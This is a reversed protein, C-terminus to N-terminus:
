RDRGICLALSNGLRTKRPLVEPPAPQGGERQIQLFGLVLALVSDKLAKAFKLMRSGMSQNTHGAELQPSTAGTSLVQQEFM